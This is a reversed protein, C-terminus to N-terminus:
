IGIQLTGASVTTAGSYTNTGGFILTGAGAKNIGNSGSIVGGFTLSAGSITATINQSLTVNGTGLNLSNAGSFTFSGNLNIANNFSNTLGNQGSTLTGGNITFTSFQSGTGYNWIMTQGPQLIGPYMFGAAWDVVPPYMQGSGFSGTSPKITRLHTTTHNVVIRKDDGTFVMDPPETEEPKELTILLQYWTHGVGDAVWATPYDAWKEGGFLEASYILYQGGIDKFKMEVWAAHDAKLSLTKPEYPPVNLGTIGFQCDWPVDYMLSSRPNIQFDVTDFEAPQSASASALTGGTIISMFPFAENYFKGMDAVLHANQIQIRNLNRGDPSLVLVDLINEGGKAEIVDIRDEHGNMMDVMSNLHNRQSAIGGRWQGIKNQIPM